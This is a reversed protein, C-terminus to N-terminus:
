PDGTGKQTEKSLKFMTKYLEEIYKGDDGANETLRRIIEEERKKDEVPLSNKKKYEGIERSLSLRRLLLEALEGDVSDIKNRLEELETM